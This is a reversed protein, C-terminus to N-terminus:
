RREVYYHHLNCGGEYIETATKVVVKAIKMVDDKSLETFKSVNDFNSIARIMSDSVGPVERILEIATDLVERNKFLFLFRKSVLKHLLNPVGPMGVHYVGMLAGVAWSKMLSNREDRPVYFIAIEDLGMRRLALFNRGVAKRVLEGLKRADRRGLIKELVELKEFITHYVWPQLDELFGHMAGALERAGVDKGTFFGAMPVLTREIQEAVRLLADKVVPDDQRSAARRAVESVLRAIFLELMTHPAWKACLLENVNCVVLYVLHPSIRYTAVVLGEDYDVCIRLPITDPLEDKKIFGCKEIEDAIMSILRDMLKQNRLFELDLSDVLVWYISRELHVRSIDGWGIEVVGYIRCKWPM